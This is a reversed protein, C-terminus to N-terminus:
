NITLNRESSLIAKMIRNPIIKFDNTEENVRKPKLFDICYAVFSQCNKKTWHFNKARWSNDKNKIEKLLNFITMKKQPILKKADYANFTRKFKRLTMVYSRAGDGFIFSPNNGLSRYGGYVFIAGISDDNEDSQGVWMASHYFYSPSIFRETLCRFKEIMFPLKLVSGGVYIVNIDFDGISKPSAEYLAINNNKNDKKGDGGGDNNNNGGDGDGSGGDDGSSGGDDKEEEKRHSLKYKGLPLDIIDIQSNEISKKLKNENFLSKKCVLTGDDNVIVDENDAIQDKNTTIEIGVQNLLNKLTVEDEIFFKPNFPIQQDDSIEPDKKSFGKGILKIEVVDKKMTQVVEINTVDKELHTAIKKIKGEWPKNLYFVDSREPVVQRNCNINLRSKAMKDEDQEIDYIEEVGPYTEHSVDEMIRKKDFSYVKKETNFELLVIGDNSINYEFVCYANEETECVADLIFGGKIDDLSMVFNGKQEQYLKSDNNLFTDKHIAGCRSCEIRLVEDSAYKKFKEVTSDEIIMSRSAMPFHLYAQKAVINIMDSTKKTKTNCKMVHLRSFAINSASHDNPYDAADIDVSDPYHNWKNNNFDNNNLYTRVCGVYFNKNTKINFEPFDDCYPSEKENDAKEKSQYISYLVATMSGDAKKTKRRFPISIFCNNGKDINMSIGKELKVVILNETEDVIKASELLPTAGAIKVFAYTNNKEIEYGPNIFYFILSGYMENEEMSISLTIPKEGTFFNISKDTNRPIFARAVIGNLDNISDNSLEKKYSEKLQLVYEVDNDNENAEFTMEIEDNIKKTFPSHIIDSYTINVDGIIDKENVAQVQFLKMNPKMDNSKKIKISGAHCLLELTDSDDSASYYLQLINAIPFDPDDTFRNIVLAIKEPPHKKVKTISLHIWKCVENTFSDYIEDIIYYKTPDAFYGKEKSHLILVISETNHLRPIFKSKFNKMENIDTYNFQNGMIIPQSENRVITFSLPELDIKEIQFPYDLMQTYPTKDKGILLVGIHTFQSNESIFIYDNYESLGTKQEFLFSMGLELCTQKKTNQGEIILPILEPNVLLKENHIEPSFTQIVSRKRDPIELLEKDLEKSSSSDFFCGSIPKIEYIPLVLEKTFKFLKIGALVLKGSFGVYSNISPQFTGYLAPFPCAETNIGFILHIDAQPGTEIGFKAVKNVSIEVKIGTRISFTTNFEAEIIDVQTDSDDEVAETHVKGLRIEKENDETKAHKCSVVYHKRLHISLVRMVDIDHPIKFSIDKAAIRSFLSLKLEIEFTFIKVTGKGLNPTTGEGIIYEKSVPIIGSSNFAKIHFGAGALVDLSADFEVQASAGRRKLMTSAEAKIDAGAYFKFNDNIVSPFNKMNVQKPLNKVPDYNLNLDGSCRAGLQKGFQASCKGELSSLSFDFNNFASLPDIETINFIAVEGDDAFKNSLTISLNDDGFFVSKEELMLKGSETNRDVILALHSKTKTVAFGHLEKVTMGFIPHLVTGKFSDSIYPKSPTIIPEPIYNALLRLHSSMIAKRKLKDFEKPIYNLTLLCLIIQIM